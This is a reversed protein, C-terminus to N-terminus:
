GVKAYQNKNCIDTLKDIICKLIETRHTNLEIMRKYNVGDRRSLAITMLKSNIDLQKYLDILTLM